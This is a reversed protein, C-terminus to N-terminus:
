QLARTEFSGKDPFVSDLLAEARAKEENSREPPEVSVRFSVLGKGHTRHAMENFFAWAPERCGLVVRTVEPPNGLMTVTTTYFRM